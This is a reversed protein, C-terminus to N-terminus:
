GETEGDMRGDVRRDMGIYSFVCVCMNIDCM